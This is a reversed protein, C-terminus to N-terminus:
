RISFLETLVNGIIVAQRTDAGLTKTLWQQLNGTKAIRKQTQSWAPYERIAETALKELNSWVCSKSLLTEEEQGVSRSALIEEILPVPFDIHSNGAWNAVDIPRFYCSRVDSFAGKESGPQPAYKLTKAIIGPEISQRSELLENEYVEGDTLDLTEPLHPVLHCCIVQLEFFSWLEKRAWSQAHSPLAFTSDNTTSTM